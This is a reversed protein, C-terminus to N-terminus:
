SRAEAGDAGLEDLATERAERREETLQERYIRAYVGGAALLEEHTGTEAVRGDEIAVIFDASKLTSTRHAILITTREAMFARLRRLIEEETHTDVHSLADDLVLIPPDKLLARALAARQKQGGSLTVGREGITTDIGDDFQELDNVLQSTQIVGDMQAETPNARGYSINERLSDSFLFSEQPVFGVAARLEPLSLDRVDVGDITVSGETPDHMRVLLNALTTKGAGTGGVLAITSGAPIRLDVGSLVPEAGYRVSVNRFEIEGRVGTVPRPDDRDGVVPVRNLVEDIRRMSVVGQQLGAVIWGIAMLQSALLALVTYFAVFDGITIRGSVVDRGGFWVVLATAAGTALIMVPFLASTYRALSMTRRMMEDNQRQFSAIEEDEQAHAKIARMGSINEQSRDTLVGFQEQVAMYKREVNTEFFIFLASIFPLYAISILTLRVDIVLLFAVGIILIVATRAIDIVVPGILDRVWQLDNTCRAMLDGTHSEVYFRQDLHMLHEALDERMRYEIQRSASAVTYRSHYRLGGEVIALVLILGAFGLLRTGTTGGVIDDVAFRLVFPAAIAAATAVLLTALGLLYRWKYARLYHWLRSGAYSRPRLYTESTAQM